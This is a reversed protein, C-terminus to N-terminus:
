LRNRRENSIWYPESVFPYWSFLPSLKGGLAWCWHEDWTHFRDWGAPEYVGATIHSVVKVIHHGARIIKSGAHFEELTMNTICGTRCCNSIGICFIIYNRIALADYLTCEEVPGLPVLMKKVATVQDTILYHGLDRPNVYQGGDTTVETKKVLCEIGRKSDLIDDIVGNLDSTSYDPVDMVKCKSIIKLYIRMSNLYTKGTNPAWTQSSVKETILDQLVERFRSDQPGCTKLRM